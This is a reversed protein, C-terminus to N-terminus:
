AMLQMAPEQAQTGPPPHCLSCAAQGAHAPKIGAGLIQAKAVFGSAFESDKNSIKTGAEDAAALM